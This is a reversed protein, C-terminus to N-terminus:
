TKWENEKSITFKTSLHIYNAPSTIAKPQTKPADEQQVEYVKIGLDIKKALYIMTKPKRPKLADDLSIM